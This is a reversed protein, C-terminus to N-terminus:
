WASARQTDCPRRLPARSRHVRRFGQVGEGGDFEAAKGGRGERVFYVWGVQLTRTYGPQAAEWGDVMVNATGAAALSCMELRHQVPALGKKGYADAVPSMYCGWVDYGRQVATTIVVPVCACLDHHLPCPPLTHALLSTAAHLQCPLM